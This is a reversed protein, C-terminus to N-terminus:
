ENSIETRIRAIVIRMNIKGNKQDTKLEIKNGQGRETQFMKGKETERVKLFAFTCKGGSKKSSSALSSQECSAAHAM